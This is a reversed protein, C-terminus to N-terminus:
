IELLQLNRIMAVSLVYPQGWGNSLFRPGSVM